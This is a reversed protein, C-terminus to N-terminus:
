ATVVVRLKYGGHNTKRRDIILLMRTYTAKKDGPVQNRRIFTVVDMGETDGLGQALRAFKNIGAKIWRARIKPNPHKILDKYSM